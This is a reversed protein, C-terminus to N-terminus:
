KGGSRIKKNVPLGGCETKVPRPLIERYKKLYTLHYPERRGIAAASPCIHSIMDGYWESREDKNMRRREPVGSAGSKKHHILNRWFDYIIKGSPKWGSKM